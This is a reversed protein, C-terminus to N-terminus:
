PVSEDCIEKVMAAEEEHVHEIHEVDELVAADEIIHNIDELMDEVEGDNVGDPADVAYSVTRKCDLMAAKFEEFQGTIHAKQAVTEELLRDIEKSAVWKSNFGDFESLKAMEVAQIKRERLEEMKQLLVKTKEILEELYELNDGILHGDYYDDPPLGEKAADESDGDGVQQSSGGGSGSSFVRSFHLAAAVRQRQQPIKNSVSCISCSGSAFARLASAARRPISSTLLSAM